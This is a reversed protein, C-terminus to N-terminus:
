LCKGEFWIVNKRVHLQSYNKHIFVRDPIVHFARKHIFFEKDQFVWKHIIVSIAGSTILKSTNFYVVIHQKSSTQYPAQSILTYLQYIFTVPLQMLTIVLQLVFSFMPPSYLIQTSILMMSTENAVKCKIHTLTLDYLQLLRRVGVDTYNCHMHWESLGLLWINYVLQVCILLLEGTKAGKGSRRRLLEDLLPILNCIIM